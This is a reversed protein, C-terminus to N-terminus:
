LIGKLFDIVNEGAIKKVVTDSYRSLLIDIVRDHISASEDLGSPYKGDTGDIDFGFGISNEGLHELAYDVHPIVDTAHVTGHKVFEPYLNIGIVGGRAAIEKAMDYTLNRQHDCVDRFNSHTAILPLPYADAVHWFSKDSLHSVDIVIGLEACRKVMRRGEFTLGTDNEDLAGSALENTDWALGMIRLGLKYLTYLEECDALLGGGGELSFLAAPAGSDIAANLERVDSIRSIGLRETEYAYVNVLRMLEARRVEPARNRFPVFAAFLQLWPHQKSTNYGNLLGRESSVKLLSDSHMDAIYM